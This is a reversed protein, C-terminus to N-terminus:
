AQAQAGTCFSSFFRCNRTGLKANEQSGSLKATKDLGSGVATESKVESLDFRRTDICFWCGLRLLEFTSSDMIKSIRVVDGGRSVAVSVAEACEM